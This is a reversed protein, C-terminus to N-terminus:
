GEDLLKDIETLFETVAEENTGDCFGRVQGKKDVMVFMGSHDYGGPSNEDVNAGIMYEKAMKYIDEHEGTVFHWKPASVDLKQEYKKLRPISDGRTDISHSILLINENEKYKDYIRLMQLAMKPCISPCRSFFFDTIYIKDKVTEKTITDGDQNYFTFDLVSDRLVLLEGDKGTEHIEFGHTNKSTDKCSFLILGLGLLLLINKM